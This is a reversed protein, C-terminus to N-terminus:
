KSWLSPHCPSYFEPVPFNYQRYINNLNNILYQRNEENSINFDIEYLYKCYLRYGEFLKNDISYFDLCDLDVFPKKEIRHFYYLYLLSNHLAQMDEESAPNKETGLCFFFDKKTKIIDIIQPLDTIKIQKAYNLISKFAPLRFDLISVERDYDAETFKDILSSIYDECTPRNKSGSFIVLKEDQLDDFYQIIVNQEEIIRRLKWFDYREVSQKNKDTYDLYRKRWIRECEITECFDELLDMDFVSNYCLQRINEIVKTDLHAMQSSRWGHFTLYFFHNGDQNSIGLLWRKADSAPIFVESPNQKRYDVIAFVFEWVSEFIQEM